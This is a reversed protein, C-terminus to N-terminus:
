LNQGHAKQNLYKEFKAIAEEVPGDCGQEHLGKLCALVGYTLMTNDKKISEIDLDQQEQKLVWKYAKNYYAVLAAIASIVAAITIINQISLVIEV